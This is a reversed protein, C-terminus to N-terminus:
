RGPLREAADPSGSKQESLLRALQARGDSARVPINEIRGHETECAMRHWVGEADYWVHCPKRSGILYRRAAVADAGPVALSEWALPTVPPSQVEGDRTDILPAGRVTGVNWYTTPVASPPAITRGLPGDIILGQDTATASVRTRVGNDDTTAELAVLRGDRWEERVHQTFRYVTMGLVTVRASADSSVTLTKGMLAFSYRNQGIPDGDRLIRFNVEFATRGPGAEAVSREASASGAGAALMVVLPVAFGRLGRFM